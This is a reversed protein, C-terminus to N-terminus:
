SAPPLAVEDCAAHSAHYSVLQWMTGHRELVCTVRLDEDWQKGDERFTRRETGSFWGVDGVARCTPAQLKISMQRDGLSQFKGDWFRSVQEWGQHLGGAPGALTVYPEHAWVSSMAKLNRGGLARYFANATDMIEGPVGQRTRAM